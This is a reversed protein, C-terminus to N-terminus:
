SAHRRKLLFAVMALAAVFCGILWWYSRSPSSAQSAPPPLAQAAPRPAPEPPAVTTEARSGDDPPNAMAITEWTGDPRFRYEVAQGKFSFTRKGSKIEEWWNQWPRVMVVEPDEGAMVGPVNPPERLPLQMLASGVASLALSEPTYTYDGLIPPPRKMRWTDSLMEGLVRVTEPSPLNKLTAFSYMMENQADSIAARGNAGKLPEYAERIRKGFYEAHGPISLFESQLKRYIEDVDSSHGEISARHGMNRLGLWLQLFKMNPADHVVEALKNDWLAVQEAEIRRDEDTWKPSDGFLPVVSAFLVLISTKM